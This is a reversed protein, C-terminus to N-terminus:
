VSAPPGRPPPQRGAAREIIVDVFRRMRVTEVEVQGIVAVAPPAIALAGTVGMCDPCKQGTAPLPVFPIEIQSSEGSNHCITALASVLGTHQLKAAIEMPAHRVVGYAHLLVGM